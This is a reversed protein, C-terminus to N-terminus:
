QEGHRFVQEWKCREDSFQERAAIRGPRRPPQPCVHLPEGDHRGGGPHCAEQENRPALPDEPSCSQTAPVRNAQAASGCM